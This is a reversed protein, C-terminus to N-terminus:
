MVRRGVHLTEYRMIAACHPCVQLDPFEPGIEVLGGVMTHCSPCQVKQAASGPQQVTQQRKLSAIQPNEIWVGQCTDCVYVFSTFEHKIGLKGSPSSHRLEGGDKPCKVVLSWISKPPEARSSLHVCLLGQECRARLRSDSCSNAVPMEQCSFPLELFPGRQGL